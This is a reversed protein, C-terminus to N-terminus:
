VARQEDPSSRFRRQKQGSIEGIPGVDKLAALDGPYAAPMIEGNGGALDEREFLLHRIQDDQRGV